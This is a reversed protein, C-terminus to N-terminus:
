AAMGKEIWKEFCEPSKCLNDIWDNYKTKRDNQGMHFESETLAEIARSFMRQAEWINGNSKKACEQLRSVGKELRMKTLTYLSPNRETRQCYYPFLDDRVLAAYQDKQSPKATSTEVPPPTSVSTEVFSPEKGPEIEQNPYSNAVVGLLQTASGQDSNAVVGGTGAPVEDFYEGSELASKPAYNDFSLVYFNSGQQMGYTETAPKVRRIIRILGADALAKL